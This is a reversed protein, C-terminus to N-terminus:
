TWFVFAYLCGNNITPDVLHWPMGPERQVASSLTPFALCGLCGLGVIAKRLRGLQWRDGFRMADLLVTDHLILVNFFMKMYIYVEFFFLQSIHIYIYIYIYFSPQTEKEACLLSKDLNFPFLYCLFDGEGKPSKKFLCGALLACYFSNKRWM